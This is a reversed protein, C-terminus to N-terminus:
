PARKIRALVARATSTLGDASAAAELLRVRATEDHAEARGAEDLDYFHRHARIEGHADRERHASSVSLILTNREEPTM